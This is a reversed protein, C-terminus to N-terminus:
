NTEQELEKLFLAIAPNVLESHTMNAAHAAGPVRILEGCDPLQGCLIEATEILIAQDEEGHVM